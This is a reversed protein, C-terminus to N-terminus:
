RQRYKTGETGNINTSDLLEHTIRNWYYGGITWRKRPDVGHCPNILCRPLNKGTWDQRRWQDVLLLKVNVRSARRDGVLWSTRTGKANHAIKGHDYHSAGSRSCSEVGVLSLWPRVLWPKAITAIIRSIAIANGEAVPNAERRDFCCELRSILEGRTTRSSPVCKTRSWRPTRTWQVQITNGPPDGQDPADIEAIRSCRSIGKEARTRTECDGRGCEPRCRGESGLVIVGQACLAFGSTGRGTDELRPEGLM